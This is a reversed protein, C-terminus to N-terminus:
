WEKGTANQRRANPRPQGLVTGNAGGRAKRAWGALTTALRVKALAFRQSSSLTRVNQAPKENMQSSPRIRAVGVEYILRDMAAAFRQRQSEFIAPDVTEATWAMDRLFDSEALVADSLRMIKAPAGACAKRLAAGLNAKVARANAITANVVALQATGLLEVSNDHNDRM